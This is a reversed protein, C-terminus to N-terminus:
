NWLTVVMINMPSPILEAIGNTALGKFARVLWPVNNENTNIM